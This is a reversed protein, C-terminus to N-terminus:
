LEKRVDIIKNLLYLGFAAIVILFVSNAAAQPFQNYPLLGKVLTGITASKGGGIIAVTAFEGMTLTFIFIAGIAIGPLSLPIIIEKLIQFKNAGLDQAAEIVKPQISALSFFIPGAMFLSYLQVFAIISSFDSYLFLVSPKDLIGWSTLAMNLIGNQGFTPVWAITRILYSTWFPTLIILFLAIQYRFTRVVKTLFFAMPFGILLSVAITVVSFVITRLYARLYGSTTFIEVFNDFTLGPKYTFGTYRWVSMIIFWALPIVLFVLFFLLVPVGWWDTKTNFWKRSSM